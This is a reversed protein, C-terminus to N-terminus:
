FKWKVVVHGGLTQESGAIAAAVDLGLRVAPAIRYYGTLGLDAFDDSGRAARVRYSAAPAGAMALTAETPDDNGTAFLAALEVGGQEGNWRAFLGGGYRTRGDENGSGGALDLSGAGSEAFRGLSGGAHTVQAIPGAAWGAGLAIGYRVEGALAWSDLDLKATAERRIPGVTLNRSVSAQGFAYSGAVTASFGAGGSGARLYGGLQWGETGAHSAHAPLDINGSWYSAGLGAAWRNGVGRYDFGLTGGLRDHAYRAGNGDSEVHGDQGAFAGWLSWGEGSGANAQGLLQRAEADAQRLASALAAAYIEGSALDFAARAQGADLMLLENYVALSDSGPALGFTSLAQSAERQNFTQAVDPFSRVVEVEVFASTADYGLAFDLFASNEQLGAFSGSVGGAATLFTYRSGDRYDTEPDLAIVKVTGGEITATGGAALLDTGGAAALELEYFSGARFVVDGSATLTGISAGPAVTGEAEVILAGLRGTGGLRAGGGVELTGGLTGTLALAGEALAFTGGYTSGDGSYALTGSGVRTLRGSGALAGSLNAANTGTDFTGGDVGIALDRASTLSGEARLTGGDLTVGGAAAGLAADSAVQLVGERVITGGAYSNASALTLTGGGTKVIGGGGMIPTAISVRTGAVGQQDLAIEAMGGALLGGGSGAVLEYDGGSLFRLGSFGQTGEVTVTAPGAAAFVANQAAWPANITGPQNTWNTSASNWTGFGGRGNAVGGPTMNSGDWYQAGEGESVMLTVVGSISTDIAWDGPNFGAPVSQVVLGNDTLAGGYDFLRYDGLAFGGADTVVLRGDLTLAGSVSFLADDSPAGLAVQVLSADNLVLSGFGLDSGANGLLTGGGSVTVLGGFAGAGGLAAGNAVAAGTNSMVGDVILTGQNVSFIGSLGATDGILRWTGAGLKEGAEFNMIQNAGFDFVASTGIGGDLAFTDTEDPNAPGGADSGGDVDGTLSYTPLFTIRDAGDNLDIVTGPTGRAVTGAVIFNDIIEPYTSWGDDQGYALNNAAYLTGGERITINAYAPTEVTEGSARSATLFVARATGLQEVTGSIDLTFTNDTASTNPRGLIASSSARTTIRGTPGVTISDGVGSFIGLARQTDILGDIFIQSNSPGNGSYTSIGTGGEGQNSLGATNGTIIQAGELLRITSGSDVWVGTGGASNPDPYADGYSRILGGLTVNANKGLWIGEGLGHLEILSGPATTVTVNNKGSGYIPNASNGTTSIIKGAPGLDLVDNDGVLIGGGSGIDRITGDITYSNGGGRGNLAANYGSGGTVIEGGQNVIIRANSFGSFNTSADTGPGTIGGRGQVIGDVTVTAGAGIRIAYNNEIADNGVTSGAGINIHAGTGLNIAQGTTPVLSAGPEVNVTVGTATDAIVGTASAGDCDVTENDAPATSSCAAFAPAPLSVALALATGMCLRTRLGFAREPWSGINSNSSVM